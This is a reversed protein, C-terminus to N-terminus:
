RYKSAFTKRVTIEEKRKKKKTQQKQIMYVCTPSNPSFLVKSENQEKVFEEPIVFTKNTFVSFAQSLAKLKQHDKLAATDTILTSLNLQEIPRKILPDQNIGTEMRM